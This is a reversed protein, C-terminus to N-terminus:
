RKNNKVDWGLPNTHIVNFVFDVSFSKPLLLAEAEAIFFGMEQDPQFNFGDIYGYIYENKEQILNSFKIGLLPSSSMIAVDKRLGLKQELTTANKVAAYYERTAPSLNEPIGTQEIDTKTNEQSTQQTKYVPYLFSALKRYKEYNEEAEAQDTSPVDFGINITRKTRKFTPIQDMRGMIFNQQWDSTYNDAFKTLYPKFDITQGTPVHSIMIQLSM